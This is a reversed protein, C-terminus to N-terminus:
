KGRTGDRGGVGLANAVPRFVFEPGAFFRDVLLPAAVSELVLGKVPQNKVAFYMNMFNPFTEQVPNTM